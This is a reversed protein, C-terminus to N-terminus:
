MLVSELGYLEIRDSESNGIMTSSSLDIRFDECAKLIMGPKPKRRLSIKRYEERVGEPHYPCYYVADFFLGESAYLRRMLEDGREYEELSFKGKSIGAQNTVVIVLKGQERAERVVRKGLELPEIAEGAPYGSDRILVGDRDLFVASRRPEAVRDPILRQAREYDEPIGIDIFLGVM